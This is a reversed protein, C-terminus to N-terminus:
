VSNGYNKLSFATKGMVTLGTTKLRAAGMLNYVIFPRLLIILELLMQM